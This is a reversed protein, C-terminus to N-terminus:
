KFLGFLWDAFETTKQVWGYKWLYKSFFNHAPSHYLPKFQYVQKHHQDIWDDVFLYVVALILVEGLMIVPILLTSMLWMGFPVLFAFYYGHHTAFFTCRVHFGLINHVPCIDWSGDKNRVGKPYPIAYAM